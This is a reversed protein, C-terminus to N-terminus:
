NGQVDVPRREPLLNGTAAIFALVAAILLSVRLGHLAGAQSAFLAGFAAVALTGGIQRSTNFVAGAVGAQRAPVSELLMGTTPQMALSGCSGVPIMVLGMLWVPASAPLAALALLSAGMLLLGGVIPVRPGYRETLRATPVGLFASLVTMPVFVLGAALATLGRHQQLYLSYLFVTGNMAALFAFGNASAVKLTRSRILNRPLMAHKGRKQSLAFVAVAVAALAFATLAAPARYGHAGAEIAAFTLSGMAIVASVQGVWDLPAASRPSRPVRALLILAAAGVPVNIVFILRWDTHSLLGGVLPGSAAAVSGVITWVAIARGRRVPDPFAERILALSSPLMIAAGAGQVVRAVVLVGLTPALGCALSAAVFLAIGAAFARNAGSRDSVAGGSLLLAAFMLTYGDMVWQLGTIGGGFADGIAPLAVNVITTDLTIVFFGLVAAVLVARVSGRDTATRDALLPATEPLAPM